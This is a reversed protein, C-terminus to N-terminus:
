RASNEMRAAEAEIRDMVEQARAGVDEARRQEEQASRWAVVIMFLLAAATVVTALQLWRRSM